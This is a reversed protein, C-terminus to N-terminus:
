ADCERTSQTIYLDVAARITNALDILRADLAERELYLLGQVISQEADSLGQAPQPAAPQLPVPPEQRVAAASNSPM